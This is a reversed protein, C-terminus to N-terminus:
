DSDHHDKATFGLEPHVSERMIESVRLSLDTEQTDEPTIMGILAAFPNENEAVVEPTKKELAVELLAELAAHIDQNESAAFAEIRELLDPRITFTTM